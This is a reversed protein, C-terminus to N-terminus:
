NWRLEVTTEATKGLLSPPLSNNTKQQNKVPKQKQHIRVERSECNERERSLCEAM